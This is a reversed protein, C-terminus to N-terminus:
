ISDSAKNWHLIKSIILEEEKLINWHHANNAKVVEIDSTNQIVKDLNNFDLKASYESIQQLNNAKVDTSTLEAKFLLGQTNTLISSVRQELLKNEVDMNSIIKEVYSIEYGERRKDERYRSKVKKFDIVKRLSLLYEDNILTDLLYVKIKIKSNMQELISAIELSIQGGLSWGFLHYIKQNTKIMIENIQSLYHKALLNLNDVKTEHYMNYSDIGYCSFNDNLANALSSYVECGGRGPHIMFMNPNKYSNNLKVIEQYNNKTQAIRSSISEIDKRIFIDSSKLNSNYHSNLKTLLKIAMISNGGLSFFDDRISIKDEAIGLVETWIRCVGAELENRPAVYNDENCIFEHDPLAKRDLKGNATLPLENLHVLVTPVMYEPLKRQLYHIIKQNDLKFNSAYYGVLYKNGMAIADASVQNKVLVVSQKIGEYDSLITEIEGLEVRYGRIKVQSDNRGIYELNGDPLWRALDGTKYLKGNKELSKDDVSQFPNKIFKENTLDPKNLYGRAIGAGGVYLEGVVGVPLPNLNEDMVYAISNSIPKGIPISSYNLKDVTIEYTTTWTTNETPGYCNILYQPADEKNELIARVPPINVKDGGVLLYKIKSFLSTDTIALQEFVGSTLLMINIAHRQLFEKFEVANLLISKPVIVLQAGNLLAGWIEFTTSDFAVNSAQTIRDNSTIHIYNTNKVFRIVARHEMMVGKPKGTTGSTYMIYALYTPTAKSELNCDSYSEIKKIHCESELSIIIGSYNKFKDIYNSITMVISSNTDELVLNIRNLPYSTDVPVYVCNAKLIALLTIIYEVSNDLCVIILSKPKVGLNILYKALRNAKANLEEYTLKVDDYIIAINHPMEKVQEEFLQHISRDSPYDKNTANWTTLFEKEKENLLYLASIQQNQDSCISELLAKTHTSIQKIIDEEFLGVPYDFNISIEDKKEVVNMTLDFVSGINPLFEREITLEKSKFAPNILDTHNLSIQFIPNHNLSRVPRMEKVLQEFPVEQNLLGGLIMGRVKNLIDVFTEGCSFIIRIPMTNVFFGVINQDIKKSRNAFPIGVVMDKIASYRSLLIIFVTSLLTFVTVNNELAIKKIKKELSSSILLSCSKCEETRDELRAFTSSFEIIPPSNALLNKWYLLKKKLIEHSLLTQQSAAFDIYQRVPKSLSIKRSSFLDDYIIGLEQAIIDISYGDIIIHHVNILLLHVVDSLKCLTLRFLPAQSINFSKLGQKCVLKDIEEEHLKTSIKSLDIIELKLQLHQEISQYGVGDVSIVKTRLSDHRNILEQLAIQLYNVDLAGSLRLITQVNHAKTNPYLQELYWLQTQLFSLPFCNIIKQQM